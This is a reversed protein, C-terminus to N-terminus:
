LLNKHKSFCEALLWIINNSILYTRIIVPIQFISAWEFNTYNKQIKWKDWRPTYITHTTTTTKHFFLIPFIKDVGM